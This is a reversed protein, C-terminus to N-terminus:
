RTLEFRHRSSQCSQLRKDNPPGVFTAFVGDLFGARTNGSGSLVASGGVSLLVPGDSLHELVDGPSFGSFYPFSEEAGALQFTLRDPEVRGELTNSTRNNSTYFTAGHLRGTVRPGDQKLVATYRRRMAEDPLRGVCEDAANITLAWTGDVQDRPRALVLDFTLFQHATVVIRKEQEQYGPRRVRIETDGSVGYLHYRGDVTTTSLGEAPGESVAVEVGSIPLGGDRVFGSLRYTGPPIVMVSRNATNGGNNFGARVNTEGPNRGTALGTTTMSLVTANEAGWAVEASIDRSSGDAYTATASFQGTEGPALTAPGTLLVRIARATSGGAGPPVNSGGTDPPRPSTPAKDCAVLLAALGLAAASQAALSSTRM